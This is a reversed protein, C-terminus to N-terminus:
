SGAPADRAAVDLALGAAGLPGLVDHAVRGAFLELEEARREVLQTYGRVVRVTMLATLVALVISVADLGIAVTISQRGLSSIREALDSGRAAHQGLLKML